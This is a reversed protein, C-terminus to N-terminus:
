FRVQVRKRASTVADPTVNFVNEETTRTAAEKGKAKLVKQYHDQRKQRLEEELKQKQMVAKQMRLSRETEKQKLQLLREREMELKKELVGKLKRDVASAATLPSHGPTSKADSTHSTRRGVSGTASLPSNLPKSASFIKLSGNGVPSCNQPTSCKAFTNASASHSSSLRVSTAQEIAAMVSGLRSSTSPTISSPALFGIKQPTIKANPQPFHVRSLPSHVETTPFRQLKTLTAPQLLEPDISTESSNANKLVFRSSMFADDLPKAPTILVENQPNINKAATHQAKLKALYKTHIANFACGAEDKPTELQTLLKFLLQM